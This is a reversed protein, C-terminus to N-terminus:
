GTTRLKRTRCRERVACPREMIRLRPIWEVPLNRRSDEFDSVLEAVSVYHKRVDHDERAEEVLLSAAVMADVQDAAPEATAVLASGDIECLDEGDVEVVPSPRIVQLDLLLGDPTLADRFRRLVHVVDEPEM